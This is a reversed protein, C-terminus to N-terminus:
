DDGSDSSIEITEAPRAVSARAGRAPLRQHESEEEEPVLMGEDGQLHEYEEDTYEDIAGVEEDAEEDEDAAEEEEQEEAIGGSAPESEPESEYEPEEAQSVSPQGAPAPTSSLEGEERSEAALQMRHPEADSVDDEYLTESLASTPLLRRFRKAAPGDDPHGDPSAGTDGSQLTIASAQSSGARLTTDAAGYSQSGGEGEESALDSGAEDSEADAHLSEIESETGAEEGSNYSASSSRSSQQSDPRSHSLSVPMLMVNGNQAVPLAEPLPQPPWVGAADSFVIHDSTPAVLPLLGPHSTSLYLDNSPAGLTTPQVVFSQSLPVASSTASTLPILTQPNLFPTGMQVAHALPAVNLLQPQSQSAISTSVPQLQTPEDEFISDLHAGHQESVTASALATAAM